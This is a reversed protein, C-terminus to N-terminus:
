IRDERSEEIIQDVTISNRGTSSRKAFEALEAVWAEREERTFVRPQVPPKSTLQKVLEQQEHLPLRKAASAIEALTSM